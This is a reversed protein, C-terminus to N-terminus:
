KRIKRKIQWYHEEQSMAIARKLMIEEQDEEDNGENKQLTQFISLCRIKTCKSLNSGKEIEGPIQHRVCCHVKEGPKRM